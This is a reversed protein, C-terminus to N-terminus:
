TLLTWLLEPAEGGTGEKQLAHIMMQGSSSMLTLRTRQLSNETSESQEGRNVRGGVREVMRKHVGICFRVAATV